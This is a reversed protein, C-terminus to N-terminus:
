LMCMIGSVEQSGRALWQQASCFDVSVIGKCSCEVTKHPSGFEATLKIRYTQMVHTSLVKGPHSLNEEEPELVSFTSFGQSVKFWCCKGFFTFVKFELIKLKHRKSNSPGNTEGRTVTLGQSNDKELKARHFWGPRWKGGLLIEARGRAGRVKGKVEQDGRKSALWM